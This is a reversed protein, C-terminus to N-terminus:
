PVPRAKATMVGPPRLEYALRDGVARLRSPAPPRRLVGRVAASAITEAVEVSSLAGADDYWTMTAEIDGFVLDTVVDEPVEILVGRTAAECVLRHYRDRLAGRKDWFTAFRAGRAEPLLQLVGLNPPGGCLNTADARALLYLRVHAEAPADEIWETDELTPSVTRDLLEALIDDKRPFYHFLSAQRLGVKAAIERTGTAAYGQATFLAAAVDLIEQRTDARSPAPIRRPRGPGRSPAVAEM